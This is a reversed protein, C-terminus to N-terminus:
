SHRGQLCKPELSKISGLKEFRQTTNAAGRDLRIAEKPKKEVGPRYSVVDLPLISFGVHTEIMASIIGLDVQASFEYKVVCQSM